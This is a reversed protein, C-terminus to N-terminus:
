EEADAEAVAPDVAASYDVGSSPAGAAADRRLQDLSDAEPTTGGGGGGMPLAPRAAPTMGLRDLMGELRAGMRTIELTVRAREANSEAVDLGSLSMELLDDLREAYRCALAVAAADRPLVNTTELAVLLADHVGESM